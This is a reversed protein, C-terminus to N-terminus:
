CLHPGLMAVTGVPNKFMYQSYDPQLTPSMVDNAVVDVM